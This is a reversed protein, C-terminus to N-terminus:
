PIGAILKHIETWADSMVIAVYRRPLEALEEIDALTFKKAQYAPMLIQRAGFPFLTAVAYSIAVRDVLAHQGDKFPDVLDPPLIIKEILRNIDDVKWTRESEPDLLHLLEKCCVLREWEHGMKAYTIEAVRKKAGDPQPYEDHKIYGRLITPDLNQDWFYYIEDKVGAARIENVVMNVEVPVRDLAAFKRVLATASM